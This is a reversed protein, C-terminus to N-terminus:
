QSRKRLLKWLAFRHKLKLGAYSVIGEDYLKGIERAAFAYAEARSEKPTKGLRNLIMKVRQNLVRKQVRKQEAPMNDKTYADVARIVAIYSRTKEDSWDSRMTATPNIYYCYLRADIQVYKNIKSFVAFSWPVDEFYIGEIFRIGDLVKRKYLRGWVTVAVDRKGMWADFPKDYVTTKVKPIEDFKGDYLSLAKQFRCGVVDANEREMASLLLEFMQPHVFDGADVYAILDGTSQELGKNRAGAQKGTNETSILKIRGDRAAFDAIIEATKDTSGNDVCLCEFDGFTQAQLSKLCGAIYKEGNYVPIIVSIKM